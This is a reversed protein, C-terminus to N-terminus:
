RASTVLIRTADPNPVAFSLREQVTRVDGSPPDIWSRSVSLIVQQASASEVRYSNFDGIRFVAWGENPGAFVALYTYVGNIAPDGGATGFLKADVGEIPDIQIVSAASQLAPDDDVRGVEIAVGPPAASAAVPAPSSARPADADPRQQTCAALVALLAFGVSVRM